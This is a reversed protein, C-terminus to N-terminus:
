VCKLQTDTIIFNYGAETGDIYWEKGSYGIYPLAGYDAHRTKYATGFTGGQVGLTFDASNAVDIFPLIIFLLYKLTKCM